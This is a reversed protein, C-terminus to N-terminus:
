EARLERLSDWAEAADIQGFGGAARLKQAADTLSVKDLVDFGDARFDLLEWIGYQNRRWRGRGTLRLPQGFLHKGLSRALDHSVVCTYISAGDRLTAHATEDRGGIRILEGQLSGAEAVVPLQATHANAGPFRIIVGPEGDAILSGSTNDDSLMADLRDVLRQADDLSGDRAAELRARVKPVAMPLSVAIIRTSGEALDDFRTSAEEGLLRAFTEIYEGLRRMPLDAPAIKDIRFVFKAAGNM